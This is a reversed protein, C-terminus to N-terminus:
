VERFWRVSKIVKLVMEVVIDGVRRFELSRGLFLGSLRDAGFDGLMKFKVDM